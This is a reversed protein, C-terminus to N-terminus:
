RQLHHTKKKRMQSIFTCSLIQKLLIASKNATHGGEGTAKGSGSCVGTGEHNTFVADARRKVGHLRTHNESREFWKWDAIFSAGKVESTTSPRIAGLNENKKIDVGKTM